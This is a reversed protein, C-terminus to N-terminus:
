PQQLPGEDEYYSAAAEFDNLMTNNPSANDRTITFVAKTIKLSDTIKSLKEALYERSHVPDILEIIDLLQRHQVWDSDIWHGTVGTFSKYNRSSWTDTTLSLRGGGEIHRALKSILLERGSTFLATIDRMLTRRSIPMVTPNLAEILARFSPSEVLSLPLNNSVIVLLILKRINDGTRSSYKRFFDPTEPQQSKKLQQEELLSRPIGKHHIIYHQNLNGTSQLKTGIVKM